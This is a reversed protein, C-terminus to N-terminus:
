KVNDMLVRKLNAEDYIPDVEITVPVKMTVKQGDGEPYPKLEKDGVLGSIYVRM